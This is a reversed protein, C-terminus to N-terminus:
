FYIYKKHKGGEGGGGREKFPTPTSIPGTRRVVTWCTSRVACSIDILFFYCLETLFFLFFYLRLLFIKGVYALFLFFNSLYSGTKSCM